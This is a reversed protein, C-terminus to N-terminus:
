IKGRCAPCKNDNKKINLYCNKCVKFTCGCKFRGLDEKNEMCINCDNILEITNVEKACNICYHNPKEKDLKSHEKCLICGCDSKYKARIFKCYDCFDYETELIEQQKEFEKEINLSNVESRITNNGIDINNNNVIIQQIPLIRNFNNNINNNMNNPIFFITNNNNNNINNNNGNNINNRNNNDNNDNKRCCLCCICISIIGIFFLVALISIIIGGTKDDDDSQEKCSSIPGFYDEFLCKYCTGEYCYECDGDINKCNLGTNFCKGNILKQFFDCEYCTTGDKSCSKCYPLSCDKVCHFSNLHYGYICKSCRSSWTPCEQCNADDCKAYLIRKLICKNNILSYNKNCKICKASINDYLICNPGYINNIHNNSVFLIKVLFITSLMKM